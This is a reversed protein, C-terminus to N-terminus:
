KSPNEAKKPFKGMEQIPDILMEEIDCERWVTTRPGLKIPQPFRGDKVGAWWSSASIPIIGPSTKSGLIQKLRLFKTM